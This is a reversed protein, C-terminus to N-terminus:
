KVEHTALIREYVGPKWVHAFLPPLHEQALRRFPEPDIPVFTVGAAELKERYEAEARLVEANHWRTADDLAREVWAQEEPTLYRQLRPGIAPVYFSILHRTEMVYKQTEYLHSAYITALPNEQGDVVGLKLAMFMDTFPIPTVNAGFLQWTKIYVELEPVRLKLGKLDEPCLVKRSTTTLYRPGRFWPQMLRISARQQMVRRLEEGVPGNWVQQLHEYDRWLFPVEFMGYEPAYWGIIALGTVTLDICRLKLGETLERENGLQGGPYLRVSLRGGSEQQVREAFRVAARHLLESPGPTYALRIVKPADTPRNCGVIGLALVFSGLVWLSANHFRQSSQELSHNVSARSLKM